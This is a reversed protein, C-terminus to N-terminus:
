GESDLSGRSLTCVLLKVSEESQYGQIISFDIFDLIEFSGKQSWKLSLYPSPGKCLGRLTCFSSTNKSFRAEDVNVMDQVRSRESAEITISRM